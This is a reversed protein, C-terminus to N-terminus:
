AAASRSAEATLLRWAAAADHSERMRRRVEGDRLRRAIRGLTKLHVTEAGAPVLLVFVLDVPQDDIAEFAIPDHLRWFFAHLDDIGELRAHPLAVGEGVGTSGLQEREKLAALVQRPAVDAAAGAAAAIESLLQRKSSVRVDM